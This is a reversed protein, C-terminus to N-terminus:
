CGRKKLMKRWNKDKGSKIPLLGLRNYIRKADISMGFHKMGKYDNDEKMQKRMLSIDGEINKFINRQSTLLHLEPEEECMKSSLSMGNTKLEAQM